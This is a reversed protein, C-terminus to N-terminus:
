RLAEIIPRIEDAAIMSASRFAEEIRENIYTRLESTAGITAAFEFASQLEAEADDRLQDTALEVGSKFLSVIDLCEKAVVNSPDGRRILDDLRARYGELISDVVAQVRDAVFRDVPEALERQIVDEVFRHSRPVPNASNSPRAM